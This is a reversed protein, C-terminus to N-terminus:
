LTGTIDGVVVTSKDTTLKGDLVALPNVAPPDIPAPITTIRANLADKTAGDTLANVATQAASIDSASGSTEAQKVTNVADIVKQVESLDLASGKDNRYSHLNDQYETLNATNTGTAGTDTIDSLAVTSKDTTLKNDLTALPDASTAAKNLTLVYTKTVSEDASTVVINVTNIGDALPSVTYTSGSSVTTGNVKITAINQENTPTIDIASLSSPVNATYNLTNKNFAENLSVGDSITLSALNANTIKAESEAIKSQMLTKLSGASLKNVATEANTVKERYPNAAMTENTVMLVFATSLLILALKSFKKNKV